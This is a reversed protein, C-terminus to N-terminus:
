FCLFCCTYGSRLFSCINETAWNWPSYEIKYGNDLIFSFPCWCFCSKLFLSCFGWYRVYQADVDRFKWTEDLPVFQMHKHAQSAGALLNSNYFGVNSIQQPIITLQLPNNDYFLLILVDTEWIVCSYYLNTYVWHNNFWKHLKVKM